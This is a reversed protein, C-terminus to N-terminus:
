RLRAEPTLGGRTRPCAWSSCDARVRVRRAQAGAAVVSTGLFSDQVVFGPRAFVM